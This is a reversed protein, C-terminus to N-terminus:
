SFRSSPNPAQECYNVIVLESVDQRLIKWTKALHRYFHPMLERPALSLDIGPDQGNVDSLTTNAPIVWIEFLVKM